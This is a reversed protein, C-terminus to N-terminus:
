RRRWEPLSFYELKVGRFMFITPIQEYTTLCYTRLTLIEANRMGEIQQEIEKLRDDFAREFHQLLTPEEFKLLEYARKWLLSAIDKTLAEDESSWLMNWWEDDSSNNENTPILTERAPSRTCPLWDKLKEKVKDRTRRSPEEAQSRTAQDM